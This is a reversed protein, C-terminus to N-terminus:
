SLVAGVSGHPAPKLTATFHYIYETAPPHRHNATNNTANTKQDSRYRNFTSAAVVLGCVTAGDVRNLPKM